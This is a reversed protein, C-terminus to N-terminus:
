LPSYFTLNPQHVEGGESLTLIYDPEVTVKPLILAKKFSIIGSNAKLGNLYTGFPGSPTDFTNTPPSRSVSPLQRFICHAKASPAVFSSRSSPRMKLNSSQCAM